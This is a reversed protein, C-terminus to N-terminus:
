SKVSSAALVTVGRTMWKSNRVTLLSYVCVWSLAVLNYIGYVFSWVSERLSARSAYITAPVFSWIMTGFVTWVLFPLPDLVLGIISFPISFLPLLISLSMVLLNLQLGLLELNFPEFRRLLVGFMILNERIDSRTWRLLM